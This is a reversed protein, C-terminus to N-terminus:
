PKIQDIFSLRNKDFVYINKDNSNIYIMDKYISITSEPDIEKETKLSLLLDKDFKGLYFKNNDKVICYIFGEDIRIFSRVFVQNKSVKIPKLEDKDLMTLLHEDSNASKRAIVIIGEDMIAFDYGTIINLPSKGLIKRTAADITIMQSDYFGGTTYKLRKLYYFRDKYINKDILAKKEEVEKELKEIKKLAEEPSKKIEEIKKIEEKDKKIEEKDKKVEEKKEKLINKEQELQKEDKKLKEEKEKIEKDIKKIEEEKKVIEKTTEDSVPKSKLNVIDKNLEEKKTKEDEIKKKEEEIKKEKTKIDDEISRIEKEKIKLIEEREKIGRDEKKRLEEIVKKDTTETTSITKKDGIYDTTLPILIRTKGPWNKYYTDLGANDKNIYKLVEKKYKTKFYEINGRYIANYYTIFTAITYAEDYTYNYAKKIYGALIKRINNIHDIESKKEIILIDADFGKDENSTIHLMSYKYLKKSGTKTALSLEEGIKIINETKDVKKREGEYNIFKIIKDTKIEEEAVKYTYSIQSTNLLFLIFVLSKIKM